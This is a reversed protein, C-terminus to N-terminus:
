HVKPEEPKPQNQRAAEQAAVVMALIPEVRYMLKVYENIIRDKKRLLMEQLFILGIALVLIFIYLWDIM